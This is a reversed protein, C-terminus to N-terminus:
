YAERLKFKLVKGQLSRPLPEDRFHYHKPLKYRALRESCFEQMEEETVSAGKEPVIIAVPVEGWKDDKTGIVAAEKINPHEYLVEEIEAPYVNIAGSLIMDQKRDVLYYFGEEDQEAMDGLGLWGDKFAEETAKENKYYGECL